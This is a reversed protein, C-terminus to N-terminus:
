LDLRSSSAITLRQKTNLKMAMRDADLEPKPSVMGLATAATIIDGSSKRQDKISMSESIDILVPLRRAQVYSEKVVATPELLTTVVLVLALIRATILSLRVPLAIGWPRRYSYIAFLTIAVFVTIMAGNSFPRALFVEEIQGIFPILEPM